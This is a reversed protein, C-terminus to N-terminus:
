RVNGQYRSDRIDAPVVPILNAEKLNHTDSVSNPSSMYLSSIQDQPSFRVKPKVVVGASHGKITREAM